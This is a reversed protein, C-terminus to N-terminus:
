NLSLVQWNQNILTGLLDVAECIVAQLALAGGHIMEVKEQKLAMNEALIAAHVDVLAQFTLRDCLLEQRLVMNEALLDNVNLPSQDVYTTTGFQSTEPCIGFSVDSSISATYDTITYLSRDAFITM